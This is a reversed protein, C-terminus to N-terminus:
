MPQRDSKMTTLFPIQDDGINGLNPNNNGPGPNNRRNGRNQNNIEGFGHVNAMPFINYFKCALLCLM